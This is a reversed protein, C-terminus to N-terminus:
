ELILASAHLVGGRCAFRRVAEVGRQPTEGSGKILEFRRGLPPGLRIQSAAIKLFLEGNKLVVTSPEGDFKVARDRSRFRQFGCIFFYAASQM